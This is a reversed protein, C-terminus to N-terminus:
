LLKPNLISCVARREDAAHGPNGMLKTELGGTHHLVGDKRLMTGGALDEM